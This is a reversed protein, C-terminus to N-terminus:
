FLKLLRIMSDYQLPRADSLCCCHSPICVLCWLRRYPLAQQFHRVYFFSLMATVAIVSLALATFDQHDTFRCDAFPTFVTAAMGTYHMGCIAIGMVLAAVIRWLIQGRGTHRGVHVHDM